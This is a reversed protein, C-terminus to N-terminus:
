KRTTVFDHEKMNQSNDKAFSSSALMVNDLINKIKLNHYSQSQDLNALLKSVLSQEGENTAEGDFM